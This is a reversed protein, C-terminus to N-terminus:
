DLIIPDDKLSGHNIVVGARSYAEMIRDFAERIEKLPRDFLLSIAEPGMGKYHISLIEADDEGLGLHGMLYPVNGLYDYRRKELIEAFEGLKGDMRHELSDKLFEETSRRFVTKIETMYKSMVPVGDLFLYVKETGFVKAYVLRRDGESWITVINESDKEVDTGCRPCVNVDKVSTWETGCFVCTRRAPGEYGKCVPCLDSLIDKGYAFMSGCGSCRKMNCTLDWKRSKCSPCMTVDTSTDRY